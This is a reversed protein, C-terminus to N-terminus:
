QGIQRGKYMQISSQISAFPLQLHSAANPLPDLYFPCSWPMELAEGFQYRIKTEVFHVEDLLITRPVHGEVM